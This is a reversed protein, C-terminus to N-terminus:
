KIHKEFWDTIENLRRVRHKPKGSRSLEHNEGHFVIMRTEVDRVRMAQMMQMGEALPCRYDCDSHLFLTPTTANDVYALPSHKWLTKEDMKGFWDDFGIGCQDPGFYTGIDSIYTMSIWNSISRQSAACCFRDTHTVIWNTMFGGYSGGTECLRRSDIAPYAKLVTDVFDMLNKFDVGGYDGRIDAFEDGRGDSGKINTYMVVFGKAVWYQMEHFFLESYVCRPGGHVDLVAPYSKKPDYNEPLLVWGHLNLGESKYDIRNPKAVYVDKLFESNHNSLLKMKKTKVDYTYIETLSKWDGYALVVKDGVKDFFYISGPIDLLTEKEGSSLNIRVLATHDEVTSITYYFPVGDECLVKSGRGGGVMVDGVVSNHLSYEPVYKEVKSLKGDLVQYLYASENIGYIRYDSHFCYTKGNVFAADALGLDGKDYLPIIKDEKVDYRYLNCFFDIKKQIKSTAFIVGGDCKDFYLVDTNTDTLRKVSFLDKDCVSKEPNRKLLFLSNKKGNIVGQGNIWYPVEDWVEYDSELEKKKEEKKKARTEDDDKYADVDLVDLEGLAIYTNEGVKQFGSFPHSFKAWPKAEGGNINISYLMVGEFEDEPNKRNLILTEDDEWFSITSDLTSTLQFPKKNGKSLWINRKYRNKEGDAYAIHYAFATGSDNMVINEPYQYRLIDELEVKKM